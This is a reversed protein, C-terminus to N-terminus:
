GKGTLNAEVERQQRSEVRRDNYINMNGNYYTSHHSLENVTREKRGRIASGHRISKKHRVERDARAKKLVKIANAVTKMRVTKHQGHSHRYSFSLSTGLRRATEAKGLRNHLEDFIFKVRTYPILGHETDGYRRFNKCHKCQSFPKGERVGTKHVWFESLPIYKGKHLPGNCRKTGEKIYNPAM